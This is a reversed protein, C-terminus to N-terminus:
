QGIRNDGSFLHRRIFESAPRRGRAEDLKRKESETMRVCVSVKKPDDSTPRAM